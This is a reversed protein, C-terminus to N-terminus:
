RNARHAPIAITTATLVGTLHEAKSRRHPIIQIRVWCIHAPTKVGQASHHGVQHPAVNLVTVNIDKDVARTGAHFDQVHFATAQHDIVHFQFLPTKFQRNKIFTGM